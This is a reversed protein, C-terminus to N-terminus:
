VALKPNNVSFQRIREWWIGRKESPLVADLLSNSKEAITSLLQMTTEEANGVQKSLSAVAM